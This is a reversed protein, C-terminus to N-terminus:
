QDWSAFAPRGGHTVGSYARPSSLALAFVGAGAGSRWDAGRFACREDAKNNAWFRGVYDTDDSAPALAMVALFHKCFDSVGEEITTAKFDASRGSDDASKIESKQWQWHSSVFDLKISTATTGSGNPVIYINAWDTADGNIARWEASAASMDIDNRAADNYPIVQLEGKVLRLGACWEWINGNLGWVGSKTGNDFWTDPGTGTLVQATDGKHAGADSREDTNGRIAVYETEQYDKGWNNNGKPQTKHKKANLALFAWEAATICHHGKGKNRCRQVYQDHTIYTTAVTAPLSYIRDDHSVGPFKGIMIENVQEGNIKFAPHVSDDEVTGTVLDKCNAFPYRVFISPMDRDDLIMINDPYAVQLAFNSTDYSM